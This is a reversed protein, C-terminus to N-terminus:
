PLAIDALQFAADTEVSKRPMEAHLRMPTTVASVTAQTGVSGTWRTAGHSELLSLIIHRPADAGPAASFRITANSGNRTFQDVRIGASGLSLTQGVKSEVEDLDASITSTALLIHAHLRLSTLKAGPTATNTRLRIPFTIITGNIRPASPPPPFFARGPLTGDDLTFTNGADDTGLSFEPVLDFPRVRPDTVITCNLTFVSTATAAGGSNRMASAYLLFPGTTDFKEIRLQSAAPRPAAPVELLAMQANGGGTVYSLAIPRQAHLLKFVEWFPRDVIDLTYAPPADPTGQLPVDMTQSLAQAIGALNANQVKLSIPPLNLAFQAELEDLRDLLISRVESDMTSTALSRLLSRQSYPVQALQQRAAERQAPTGSLDRVIRKLQSEPDDPSAPPAVPTNIGRTTAVVPPPANEDAHRTSRWFEFWVAALLAAVLVYPWRTKPM